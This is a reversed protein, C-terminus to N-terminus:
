VRAGDDWGDRGPGDGMTSVLYAFGGVFWCFLLFSAATPLGTLVLLVLALIPALM